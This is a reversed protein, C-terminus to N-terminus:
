CFFYNKLLLIPPVLWTNVQIIQTCPLDSELHKKKKELFDSHIIEGIESAAAGTSQMRM